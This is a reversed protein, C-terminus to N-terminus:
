PVTIGYSDLIKGWTDGHIVEHNDLQYGDADIGYVINRPKEEIPDASSFCATFGACLAIIAITHLIQKM